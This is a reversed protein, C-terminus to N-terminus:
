GPITFGISTGGGAPQTAEITGGHAEVLRKAIALGLGTGGTDASRVFRDFVHPLLEADIGPGTDRVETRVGAKTAFVRVLVRAGPPTHRIANSLLNQLVEALRVPDADLPAPDSAELTLTV